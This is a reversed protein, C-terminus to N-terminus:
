YIWLWQRDTYNKPLGMDAFGKLCHSIVAKTAEGTQATATLFGSYTYGTVHVYKLRCFKTLHTVDMQRLHNPLLGTVSINTIPLYQPCMDCQKVIQQATETTLGFQKRLSHSNQHHFTHSQRALKGILQSM